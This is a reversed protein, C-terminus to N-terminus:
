TYIKIYQELEKIFNDRYKKPSIIEIDPIWAKLINDIDEETTVGFQILLSGDDFEKLIKQSPLINKLKFNFAIKANVKVKIEMYNGDEFWASHVNELISEIPKDIKFKETKIKMDIIEHIFVTKIKEDDLDKGFLYWIGDFNVVKYPEIEISRNELKITLKNKYEIAKEISNLLPSDMDISQFAKAKIHYPSNFTPTLLKTFIDYTIKEFNNNIDKIQSLSLYIFLMENEKLSTKNLSFGDIFKLQKLSNEEIPFYCLRENIDRQITKSSVNFEEMLEVRTPLENNSLKQLIIVLRTLVKDSNKIKDSNKQLNEFM